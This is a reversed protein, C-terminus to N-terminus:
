VKSEVQKARRAAQLKDLHDATMIRKPKENGVPVFSADKRFSIYKKDTQYTKATEGDIKEIKVCQYLKDLKNVVTRDATYIKCVNCSKDFLIITEREENTLM